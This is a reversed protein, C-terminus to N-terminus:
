GILRNFRIIPDTGRIQQPDTPAIGYDLLMKTQTKDEIVLGVNGVEDGGGLFHFRMGSDIPEDPYKSTRGPNYM